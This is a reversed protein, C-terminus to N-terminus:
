NRGIENSSTIEHDPRQVTAQLVNLAQLAAASSSIAAAQQVPNKWREIQAAVRADEDRFDPLQLTHAAM